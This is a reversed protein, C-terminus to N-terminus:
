FGAMGDSKFGYQLLLAAHGKGILRVIYSKPM